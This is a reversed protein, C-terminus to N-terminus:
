PSHLLNTLYIYMIIIYGLSMGYHDKTKLCIPRPLCHLGVDTQDPDESNLQLEMQTKKVFYGLTQDRQKFKLNIVVFNEPTQFNLVKRYCLIILCIIYFRSLAMHLFLHLAAQM